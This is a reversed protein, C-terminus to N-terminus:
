RVKLDLQFSKLSRPFQRCLRDLEFDTMVGMDEAIYSENAEM